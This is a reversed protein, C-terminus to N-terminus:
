ILGKLAKEADDLIKKIEPSLIDKKASQASDEDDVVTRLIWTTPWFPHWTRGILTLLNCSKTLAGASMQEFQKPTLGAQKAIVTNQNNRTVKYLDFKKAEYHTLGQLRYLKAEAIFAQAITRKVDEVSPRQAVHIALKMSIQEPDVPKVLMICPELKNLNAITTPDPASIIFALPLEAPNYTQRMQSVTNIFDTPDTPVDIIVLEFAKKELQKVLDEVKNFLSVTSTPSTMFKKLGTNLKVDKSIVVVTSM